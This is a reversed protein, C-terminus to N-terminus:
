IELQQHLNEIEILYLSEDGQILRDDYKLTEASFHALNKPIM